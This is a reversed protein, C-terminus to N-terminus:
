LFKLSLHRPQPFIPSIPGPFIPFKDWITWRKGGIKRGNRVLKVCKKCMEWLTNKSIGWWEGNGGM